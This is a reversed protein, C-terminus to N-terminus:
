LVGVKLITMKRRWKAVFSVHKEEEEEEKDGLL